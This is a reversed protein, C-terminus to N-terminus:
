GAMRRFTENREVLEDYTGIAAVRGGELLFIKDCSRVTTLRHAVMIITKAHAINAVADMVARETLNDLASTAEDLILVSPDHYLARAIGIRQRQGGSLRVGREGVETDYGRPLENTVFDHIEALRAAREIAAIDRAESPLGFAINAAVSDDSLFIQQPVYGITSQWSRMNQPGLLVGDVLIRGADPALLGLVLDVTTTKGSGTGGVLGVTTNADISMHLGKVAARGAAPYGFQVDDLALTKILPLAEAPNPFSDPRVTQETLEAHLKTLVPLTFRMQTLSHYLQQISPFVKLLAFGFTGLVPLVDSLREEKAVLLGMIVLVLGCFAVAELVFRPLEAIIQNTAQIAVFSLTHNDYRSVYHRELGMLKVDKIGGFAEQAVKYRAANAEVLREGDRSLRRRVFFFVLAYTGGIGLAASLAVGPSIVMLLGVLCLLSVANALLRLAPMLANGVVRDCETLIASGLTASNHNLHWVYPQGLYRALRNRSFSHNRGRAFLIIRYQGIVKVAMGALIFALVLGGLLLLFGQDTTVGSASYLTALIANERVIEPDAAVALFPLVAAVGILDFLAMVTILLLFRYFQRQESRDFLEFLLRYTALM